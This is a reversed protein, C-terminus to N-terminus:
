SDSESENEEEINENTKIEIEIYNTGDNAIIEEMVDDIDIYNIYYINYTKGDYGEKSKKVILREEILWKICTQVKRTGISCEKSINRISPFAYNTASNWRECLYFYVKFTYPDAIYQRMFNSVQTFKSNLEKYPKLAVKIKKTEKDM